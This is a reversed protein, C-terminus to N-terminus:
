KVSMRRRTVLVVGAGIVLIAGIVYFMTTGIGGTSPLTAGQNNVVDRSLVGTEVDGTFDDGSLATLKPDDSEAEHTAEVTFASAVYANYGAPIKTEVLVYNGDDIGKFEFSTKSGSVATMAKAVYNKSDGLADLKGSLKANAAILAAKIEAGTKVVEGEENPVYNAAVEKYLTFEAGELPKINSDVKNVVPKYTFVIVKDKPTEGEDIDSDDTNNPNNSYKLYVENPNGTSGLEADSNLKATYTIVINQSDVSTGLKVFDAVKGANAESEFSVKISFDVGATVIAATM